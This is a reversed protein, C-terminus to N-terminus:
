ISMKIKRVADIRAKPDAKVYVLTTNISSHGLLQQVVPVDKDTADLAHHAFTHRLWHTSAKLFPGSPDDDQAACKKFFARLVAYIGSGSLAGKARLKDAGDQDADQASDTVEPSGSALRQYHQKEMHARWRDDIVGILPMDEFAVDFQLKPKTKALLVRDQRHIELAERVAETIPVKRKRKGKGMVDLLWEESTAGDIRAREMAAWTATELEERRLGTTELLRLIAALRRKAPSDELKAFTEGIVALDHDTFSRMVDLTIDERKPGAMGFAPNSTIYNKEKWSSFMAGVAAFTLNMSKDNLPGKLPRWDQGGTGGKGREPQVWHAPPDRLFAKFELLDPTSLSSLPVRKEHLAWWVLREIARRYAIQTAKSKERILDFWKQVAEVDDHADFSNPGQGRFRGNEGRLDDPWPRAKIPVLRSQSAPVIAGQSGIERLGQAPKLDWKLLWLELARARATGYRPFRDFWKPGQLSIWDALNGLSIVGARNMAERQAKSLRIWQGILHEREPRVGLNRDLWEIVHLLTETRVSCSDSRQLGIGDRAPLIDSRSPDIAGSQAIANPPYEALYLELLEAEGFMDEDFRLAFEELTPPIEALETSPSSDSAGTLLEVSPVIAEKPLRGENQVYRLNRLEQLMSKAISQDPLAMAGHQIRQLLEACYAELAIREPQRGPWLLYQRSAVTLDVDQAVARLFAFEDATIRTHVVRTRAGLPRGRRRKPASAQSAVPEEIDAAATPFVTRNSM